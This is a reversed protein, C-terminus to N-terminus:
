GGWATPGPLPSLAEIRCTWPGAASPATYFKLIGAEVAAPTQMAIAIKATGAYGPIVEVNLGLVQRALLAFTLNTSGQQSAGVHISVGPQRLDQARMVRHAANVLLM